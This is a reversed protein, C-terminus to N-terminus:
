KGSKFQVIPNIYIYTLHWMLKKNLLTATAKKIHFVINPTTKDWRLYHWEIPVNTRCITATCNISITITWVSASVTILVTINAINTTWTWRRTEMLANSIESQFHSIFSIINSMIILNVLIKNRLDIKGLKNSFQERIAAKNTIQIPSWWEEM